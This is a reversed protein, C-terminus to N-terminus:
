DRVYTSVNSLPDTVTLTGQADDRAYTTLIAQPTQNSPVAVGGTYDRFSATTGSLRGLDDHTYSVGNGAPDTATLLNGRDDYTRTWTRSTADTVTLLHSEDDYTYSSTKGLGDTVAQLRGAEDYLYGTEDLAVAGDTTVIRM